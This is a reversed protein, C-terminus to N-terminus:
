QPLSRYSDMTNLDIFTLVCLPRLVDRIRALRIWDAKTTCRQDAGGGHIPSRPMGRRAVCLGDRETWCIGLLYLDVQPAAYHTSVTRRHARRVVM